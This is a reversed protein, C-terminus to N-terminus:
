RLLVDPLQLLGFQALSFGHIGLEFAFSLFKDDKRLAPPDAEESSQWMASKAM